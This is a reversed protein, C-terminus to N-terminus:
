PPTPGVLVGVTALTGAADIAFSYYLGTPARLILPKVTNKAEVFGTTRLDGAEDVTLGTREPVTFGGAEDVAPYPEYEEPTSYAPDDYVSAYPDPATTLGVRLRSTSLLAGFYAHQEVTLVVTDDAGSLTTHGHLTHESNDDQAGASDVGADFRHVTLHEFHANGATPNRRRV